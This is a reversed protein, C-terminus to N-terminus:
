QSLMWSTVAAVLGNSYTITGTGSQDLALTALTVGSSVRKLTATLTRTANDVLSITFVMDNAADTVSWGTPTPPFLSFSAAGGSGTASGYASGGTIVMTTATPQTLTLQNLGGSRLASSGTFNLVGAATSDLGLTAVSGLATNLGPFNQAIGGQCVGINHGSAGFDCNLGLQVSPAGSPSTYVGLGNVTGTLINNAFDIHRATEDFAISGLLTGTPGTYVANAILHYTDGVVTNQTVTEVMYPRTCAGDFFFSVVAPVQDANPPIRMAGGGPLALCNDPDAGSVAVLTYIQSQLVTSALAIALGQQALVRQELLSAAPNPAVTVQVTGAIGESTATVTTAGAAIATVSGTLSVSVIGVPAASWTVTRGVLVHGAADKITTGYSVAADGVEFATKPAVIVVSAVPGPEIPNVTISLTGSKGESTATITATGPGVATVLGNSVTAVALSSSTWTIARGSLGTGAADRPTATLQVTLGPTLASTSGTVTVTAVPEGGNTTPGGGCGATLYLVLALTGPIRTRM